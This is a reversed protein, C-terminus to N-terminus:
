RAMRSANGIRRRSRSTAATKFGPLRMKSPRHIWARSRCDLSRCRTRAPIISDSVRHLVCRFFQSVDSFTLSDSEALIQPIASVQRCLARVAASRVQASGQLRPHGVARPRCARESPSHRRLRSPGRSRPSYALGILESACDFSLTLAGLVGYVTLEPIIANLAEGVAQTGVNESKWRFTDGLRDAFYWYGDKTRRLLDGAASHSPTLASTRRRLRSPSSM